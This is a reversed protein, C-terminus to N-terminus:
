QTNIQVWLAFMKTYCTNTASYLYVFVNLPVVLVYLYSTCRGPIFTFLNDSLMTSLMRVINCSPIVMRFFDLFLQSVFWWSLNTMTHPNRDKNKAALGCCLCLRSGLEAERRPDMEKRSVCFGCM